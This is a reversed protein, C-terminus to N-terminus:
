LHHEYYFGQLTACFKLWQQEITPKYCMIVYGSSGSEEGTVWMLLKM